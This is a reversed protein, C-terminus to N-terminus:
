KNVAPNAPKGTQYTNYRTNVGDYVKLGVNTLKDAVSIGQDLKDM